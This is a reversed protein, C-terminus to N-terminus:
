EAAMVSCGLSSICLSHRVPVEQHMMMQLALLLCLPTYSAVGVAVNDMLLLAGVAWDGSLLGM